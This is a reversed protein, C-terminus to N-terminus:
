GFVFVDLIGGKVGFRFGMKSKSNPNENENKIKYSITIDYKKIKLFLVMIDTIWGSILIMTNNKIKIKHYKFIM